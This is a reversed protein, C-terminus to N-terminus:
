CMATSCGPTDDDNHIVLKTPQSESRMNNM